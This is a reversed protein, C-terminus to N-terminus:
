RAEARRPNGAFCPIAALQLLVSVVVLAVISRDLLVGALASGAFWAAGFIVDYLGFATARRGGAARAVLALLLVDQVATGAGWLAVGTKAAAGNALFVLPTAASTLAIAIAVVPIGVRDLLSGLLASALAAVGMAVAFWLSIGAADAVHDRSLRFAILAFDVFGAAVLAGGLAYRRFAARDRPAPNTSDEDLPLIAKGAATAAGLCVLALLAPVILASFGAAFGGRGIEFAVILPGATAGIQDLLENLGFARGSGLERGAQALVASIVPKRIGRGVREGVALGAAAPWSGALALAPVCLLNLAYGIWAELWYRGTRDAIAGSLLRIAFGALEGGGAVIGVVAGSAGLRGLFAGIVGRYGEYTMDAFLNVAGMILVFRLARKAGGSV